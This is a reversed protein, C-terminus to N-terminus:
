RSAAASNSELAAQRVRSSIGEPNARSRAHLRACAARDHAAAPSVLVSVTRASMIAAGPACGLEARVRSRPGRLSRLQSREVEVPAYATAQPPQYQPQEFPFLALPAAAASTSVATIFVAATLISRLNLM